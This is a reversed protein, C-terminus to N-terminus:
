LDLEESEDVCRQDHHAGGRRSRRDSRGAEGDESGDSGHRDEGVLSTSTAGRTNRSDDLLEDRPMEENERKLVKANTQFKLGNLERAVVANTTWGRDVEIELAKVAKLRDTVPKVSGIWAANTWAYLTEFQAVDNAAALLGEATIDGKRVKSRLWDQYIPANFDRAIKGRTVKLYMVFEQLAAASASYNSNFSLQGIEPPIECAWLIASIISREFEPFQLTDGGDAKFAHPVEGHQLEELVLGPIHDRLRLASSSGDFDTTAVDGARIAGGTMGLSAMKDEKKEFWIALMSQIVAKRQASDRYRDIERLSQLMIGLLPVGRVQGLRKDTGYMLWVVRQGDPAHAAFRTTQIEIGLPGISPMQVYYAVQRGAADLEVGHTVTHGEAVDVLMPQVVQHGGILQVSPLQTAPNLRSVVLVDGGVLAERRATATLNGFTMDPRQEFDCVRPDNIWAAWRAEVNDSWDHLAEDELGLLSAVPRAELDLGLCVENTILRRILGRAYLNTEFLEHSRQRLTFYDLNLLTDIIVNSDDGWGGLFKEGDFGYGSGHSAVRTPTAPPEDNWAWEGSVM